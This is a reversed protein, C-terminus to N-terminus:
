ASADTQPQLDLGQEHSKPNSLTGHPIGRPIGYSPIPDAFKMIPPLFLLSATRTPYRATITANDDGGGGGDDDLLDGDQAEGSRQTQTEAKGSRRTPVCTGTTLQVFPCPAGPASQSTAATPHQM